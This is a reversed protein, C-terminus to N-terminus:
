SVSIYEKLVGDIKYNGADDGSIGTVTATYNGIELQNAPTSTNLEVKLTVDDGSVLNTVKAVPMFTSGAVQAVGEWSVEIVRPTITMTRTTEGDANALTYNNSSLSSIGFNYTGVNKQPTANPISNYAVQQGDSYGKVSPTLKHVSGDYVVTTEGTWTIKVRQPIIEVTASTGSSSLVYNDKDTGSIGIVSATYTGVNSVETLTGSTILSVADGSVAGTLTPVLTYSKGAYYTYSGAGTWTVGITKKRITFTKTASTGAELVYNLTDDLSVKATYTGANVQSYNSLTVPVTKTSRDLATVSLEHYKGDYYVDTDGSWTITVVAKNITITQTASYGGDRLVYNTKDNLTLLVTHKGANKNSNNSLTFAVDETGNKVTASLAHVSGDYDVETAGSWMITVVAKNITITQTASYGGDRLVYNTKDNLTLLVTHKGANKNSNNSLTFAVDETGYKVTASLAHVSGDYDVETAGSWIVSVERPNIVMTASLNTAGDITYNPNDVGVISVSYTGANVASTAANYSLNLTDGDVKKIVTAVMTRTTGPAYTYTTNGSWSVEIVQPKITLTETNSGIVGSLTYNSDNLSDVAITYTNANTYSNTGNKYNFSVPIGDNAGVVTATLKYPSGNYTVSTSGSWTIKVPQPKIEIVQKVTAGDLTYNSNSLASLTVTNKGVNIYSNGSIAAGSVNSNTATCTASDSGVFGSLEYKLTHAEGDYVFDRYTTIGDDWKWIVTLPKKDVEFSVSKTSSALTYNGADIGSLNISVSYSGANKFSNSTYVPTVVDGACANNFDVYVNFTSGNYMLNNVDVKTSGNYTAYWSVDLELPTIDYTATLSTGGTLTYNNNDVATATVTYAAAATKNGDYGTYGSINVSDGSAKNKVTAVPYQEKGNYVTTSYSWTLEVPRRAISWTYETNSSSDLTYNTNGVNTVKATYTGAITKQNEVYTLNYDDGSYIKGDGDSSASGSIYASQTKISGSYVFSNSDWSLKVVKPSITFDLTTNASDLIYNAAYTGSLGTVKATYSGANTATYTSGYVLEINCDTADLHKLITDRIGTTFTYTKKNYVLNSAGTYKVTGHNTNTYYWIGNLTLTKPEITFQAETNVTYNGDPAGNKMVTLKNVNYKGADVAFSQNAFSYSNAAVVTFTYNATSSGTVKSNATTEAKVSLKGGSVDSAVLGNLSFGPGQYKGTYIVSGLNNWEVTVAKPTIKWTFSAGKGVEYNANGTGSVVINAEGADTRRRGDVSYSLTITDDGLLTYSPTAVREVGNYVFSTQSNGDVSWSLNVSYPKIEWDITTTGSLTYNEYEAPLTAKTVYTKVDKKESDTLSLNVTEGTVVNGLIVSVKYGHYNYVFEAGSTLADTKNANAKNTIQWSSITIPRKAISYDSTFSSSLTYNASPFDISTVSVPYSGADTANYVLTFKGNEVAGSSATTEFQEFRFKGLDEEAIGNIYLRFEQSHGNYVLSTTQKSVTLLKPNIVFSNTGATLTYNNLLINSGSVLSNVNASYTGSDVGSFSITYVGDKASAFQPHATSDTFDFMDITFSDEDSAAFNRIEVNVSQPKGNYDLRGPNVFNVTLTRPKIEWEQTSKSGTAATDFYYNPNDTGTIVAKYKGANTQSNVNHNVTDYVFNVSDGPIAGDLVAYLTHPAGDYVITFSAWDNGDTQWNKVSVTKPVIKWTHTNDGSLEIDSISYNPNNVGIAVATYNNGANKQVNGIYELEVVDTGLYGTVNMYVKRDLGNYDFEDNSWGVYALQKPKVTLTANLTKTAYNAAEDPNNKEFVAEVTYEGANKVGVGTSVLTKSDGTGTYYNYTIKIRESVVSGDVALTYNSANYIQTGNSLSSTGIDLQKKNIRTEYNAESVATEGYPSHVTVKLTYEGSDAVNQLKVLKSRDYQTGSKVWEYTYYTERSEYVLGDLPHTHVASLALTKNEDYVFQAYEANPNEDSAAGNLLHDISIRPQDLIWTANLTVNRTINASNIVQEGSDKVTWLLGQEYGVRGTIVPFDRQDEETWYIENVQNAPKYTGWDLTAVYEDIWKAYLSTNSNFEIAGDATFKCETVYNSDIYWGRFASAAKAGNTGLENRNSIYARTDVEPSIGWSGTKNLDSVSLRVPNGITSFISDIYYDCDTFFDVCFEGDGLIPRFSKVHEFNAERYENYIDKDVEIVVKNADMSNLSVIKGVDEGSMVIKSLASCSAFSEYSFDAAASYELTKLSTSKVADFGISNVSAPLTLKEIKNNAIANNAIYKLNSVLVTKGEENVTETGFVIEKVQYKELVNDDILANEAIGVVPLNNYIAPVNVTPSTGKYVATVIYGDGEDNLEYQLARTDAFLDYFKPPMKYAVLAGVQLLVIVGCLVGYVRVFAKSKKKRKDLDGRVSPRIMADISRRDMMPWIIYAAVAVVLQILAIVALDTRLTGIQLTASVVEGVLTLLWLAGVSYSVLPLWNFVIGHYNRLIYETVCLGIQLVNIVAMIWIHTLIADYIGRRSVFILTVVTGIFISIFNIIALIYRTNVVSRHESLISSNMNNNTM